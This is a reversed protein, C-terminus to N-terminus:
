ICTSKVIGWCCNNYFCSISFLKEKLDKKFQLVYFYFLIFYKFSFSNNLYLYRKGNRWCSNNFFCSILFLKEKLIKIYITACLFLYNYSVYVARANSYYYNNMIVWNSWPSVRLYMLACYVDSMYEISAWKNIYIM